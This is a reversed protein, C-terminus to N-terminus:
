KLDGNIFVIKNTNKFINICVYFIIKVEINSIYYIFSHAKAKV